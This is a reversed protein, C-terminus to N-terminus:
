LCVVIQRRNGVENAVGCILSSYFLPAVWENPVYNSIQLMTMLKQVNYM